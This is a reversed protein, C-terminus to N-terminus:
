TGRRAQAGATRKEWATEAEARQVYRPSLGVAATEGRSLREHAALGVSVASAAMADAPAEEIDKAREGLLGLLEERNVRWGEGLVVTTGQLSAAAEALAGVKEESLTTLVGGAAWRYRAWYVEGVRSKLMPCLNGSENRCNWAMAELTPVAVLPLGTVMRLGMMTALGVRLGTFSGPGISVALGDLGTLAFGASRLLRDITPILSRAHSGKADEDSRALVKTGDLIAVSQYGTATDIALLKM